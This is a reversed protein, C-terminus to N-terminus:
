YNGTLAHKDKFSRRPNPPVCDDSDRQLSCLSVDINNEDDGGEFRGLPCCLLKEKCNSEVAEAVTM